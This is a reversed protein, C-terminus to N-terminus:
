FELQVKRPRGRGRPALWFYVAEGDLKSVINISALNAASNLRRKIAAASEDPTAELRGAQGPRLQRIFNLYELTVKARGTATKLQAEEIPIMQFTPM